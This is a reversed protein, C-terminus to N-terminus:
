NIQLSVPSLVVSIRSSVELVSGQLGFLTAVEAECAYVLATEAGTYSARDVRSSPHYVM